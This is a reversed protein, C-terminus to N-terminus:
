TKISKSKKLLRPTESSTISKSLMAMSICDRRQRDEREERDVRRREEREDKEIRLREEREFKESLEKMRREEKDEREIRRPLFMQKNWNIGQGCVPLGFLITM